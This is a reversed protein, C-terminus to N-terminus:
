SAKSSRRRRVTMLAGAVLGLGALTAPEPVAENQGRAVVKFDPGNYSPDATVRIGALSTIGLEELSVGWSGVRQNRSLEMTDINYGAAFQDNRNLKLFNGILNGAKDIAQIGLDSNKGREWFFLNDLGTNDAKVLNDFFLNISFSAEDEDETDIINNLNQNGLYAAIEADTPDELGSVEVGDPTSAEDGKDTSAAGTNNISGGAEPDSTEGNKGTLSIPTNFLIEAEKVLNFSDFTIDNQTISELFIDAEPDGKQSVNTQFTAAQASSSITLVTGAALCLFTSTRQFNM